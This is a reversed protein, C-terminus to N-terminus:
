EERLAGMPDVRAARRAPVFAAALAVAALIGAATAVAAPRVDDAGAILRGLFRAGGAVGALGVALGAATVVVAHRLVLM